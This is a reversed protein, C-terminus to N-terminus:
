CSDTVCGDGVLMVYRQDYEDALKMGKVDGNAGNCNVPQVIGHYLLLSMAINAAGKNTTESEPSVPSILM